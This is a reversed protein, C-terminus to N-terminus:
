FSGLMFLVGIISSAPMIIKPITAWHIAHRNFSGAIKGRISM